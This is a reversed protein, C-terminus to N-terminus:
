HQDEEENEKRKMQENLFLTDPSFLLSIVEFYISHM